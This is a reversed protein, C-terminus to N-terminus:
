VEEDDPYREIQEALLDTLLEVIESIEAAPLEVLAPPLVRIGSGDNQERPAYGETPDDQLHPARGGVPSISHNM